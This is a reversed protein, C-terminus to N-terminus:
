KRWFVICHRMSCPRSQLIPIWANESKLNDYLWQLSKCSSSALANNHQFFGLTWEQIRDYTRLFNSSNLCARKLTGSVHSQWRYTWYSVTCNWETKFICKKVLRKSIQYARWLWTKKGTLINNMRRSQWRWHKGVGIWMDLKWINHSLISRINENLMKRVYTISKKTCVNM